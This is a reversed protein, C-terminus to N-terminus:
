ILRLSGTGTWNGVCDFAVNGTGDDYVGRAATQGGAGIARDRERATAAYTHTYTEVYAGGHLTVAFQAVLDCTEADCNITVGSIEDYLTGQYSASGLRWDGGSGTSVTLVLLGGSGSGVAADCMFDAQPPYTIETRWEGVPSMDPVGCATGFLYCLVLATVRRM